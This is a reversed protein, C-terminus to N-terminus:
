VELDLETLTSAIIDVPLSILGEPSVQESGRWQSVPKLRKMLYSLIMHRKEYIASTKKDSASIVLTAM